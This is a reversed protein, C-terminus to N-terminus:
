TEALLRELVARPLKGVANRPLADLKRLPRPLFIPDILQALATMIASESLDPAVVLAAPRQLIDNGDNSEPQFVIGDIVGPISLLTRTLDALSARRGGVKLLDSARGLLHFGDGDVELLDHLPVPAPLHAGIVRTQGGDHDLHMADLLRWRPGAVTRRSAISGAETCGYIERVETAYAQEAQAALEPPLPATASVIGALPPLRTGANLLARIHVPATVLIRPAPVSALAARVDDPFVPRGCFTAHGAALPLLATTELGYMHQLPVTAVIQTRGFEALLRQGILAGAQYLARWTKLHPQSQGTSGSTFVIAIARDALIEPLALIETEPATQPVCYESGPTDSLVISDAYALRLTALGAAGSSPPLLTVIGRLAAAALATCFALRDDCLNIAYAKDPLQEALQLVGAAFRGRTVSQGGRWFLPEGAAAGLTLLPLTAAGNEAFATSLSPM